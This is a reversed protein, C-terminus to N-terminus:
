EEFKELHREPIEVDNGGSYEITYVWEGISCKHRDALIKTEVKIMGCVSVLQRPCFRIPATDQVKVYDGWDFKNDDIENM